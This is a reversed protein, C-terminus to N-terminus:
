HLCMTFSLLIVLVILLVPLYHASIVASFNIRKKTDQDASVTIGRILIVTCVGPVPVEAHRLVDICHSRM